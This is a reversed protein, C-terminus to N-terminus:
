QCGGLPAGARIYDQVLRVDPLPLPEGEDAPPMPSLRVFWDQMRSIEEQGPSICHGAPLAVPHISTCGDPSYSESNVLLKYLLYSSAPEGPAIIAMGVGFRPPDVLVTGGAPGIDTEHAVRGIATQQLDHATGLRLAMFPDLGMFHCDLCTGGSLVRMFDACTPATPTPPPTPSVTTGTRFSYHFRHGGDAFPIGPASGAEALPAGDYARFGGEGALIDVEYLLTPEFHGGGRIRFTVVREVVDYEPELFM